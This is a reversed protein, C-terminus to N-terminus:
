RAPRPSSSRSADFPRRASPAVPLRSFPRTASDLPRFKASTLVQFNLETKVIEKTM